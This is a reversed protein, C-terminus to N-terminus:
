IVCLSAGCDTLSRQVATGTSLAGALSPVSIGEFERFPLIFIGFNEM